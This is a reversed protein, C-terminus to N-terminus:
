KFPAYKVRVQITIHVKDTFFEFGNFLIIFWFYDFNLHVRKKREKIHLRHQKPKSLLSKISVDMDQIEYMKHIQFLYM